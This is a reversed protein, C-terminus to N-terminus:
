CYCGVVGCWERSRRRSSSPLLVSGNGEGIRECGFLLLLFLALPPRLRAIPAAMDDLMASASAPNQQLTMKM